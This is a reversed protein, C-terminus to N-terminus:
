ASQTRWNTAMNAEPSPERPIKPKPAVEYDFAPNVLTLWAARWVCFCLGLFYVAGFFLFAFTTSVWHIAMNHFRFSDQGAPDVRERTLKYACMFMSSCVLMFFGTSIFLADTCFLTRHWLLEVHRDAPLAVIMSFRLIFVIVSYISIIGMAVHTNVMRIMITMGRLLMAWFKRLHAAEGTKSPATSAYAFILPLMMFYYSFDSFGLAHRKAQSWRAMVTSWWTDGEPSYNMTPLWLPKVTAHGLTMLFCKIGMHWDEAIWKADWGGVRTALELSLSYTSYPFRVSNPDGTTALETMTTFMTGVVVLLPQKHYNKMHFIPSQWICLNRLTPVEELYLGSLTTFYKEHFESDADAVTLVINSTGQKNERLHHVLSEHAWKLNSAKGPPDDPLDRPHSTILIEAFKDQFRSKLDEAKERFGEERIEMALVVSISTKAISSASMSRLSMAVVEVDEMFQPMLLWHMVQDKDALRKPSRVCPISPDLKESDHLSADSTKGHVIGFLRWLAIGGYISMYVANGFIMTATILSLDAFIEQPYHVAIGVVFCPLGFVMICPMARAAWVWCSYIFQARPTLSSPVFLPPAYSNQWDLPTSFSPNDTSSGTGPLHTHTELNARASDTQSLMMGVVITMLTFFLLLSMPYAVISVLLMLNIDIFSVQTWVPFGHNVNSVIGSPHWHRVTVWPSSSNWIQDGLPRLANKVKAMFPQTSNVAHRGLRAVNLANTLNQANRTLASTATV